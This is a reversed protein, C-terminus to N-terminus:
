QPPKGASSCRRRVGPVPLPRNKTQQAWKKAAYSPHPWPAGTSWGAFPSPSPSSSPSRRRRRRPRVAVPIVVLYVRWPQTRSPGHRKRQEIQRPLYVVIRFPILRVTPLCHM